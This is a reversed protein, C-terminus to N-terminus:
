VCSFILLIVIVPMDPDSLVVCDSILCAIGPARTPKLSKPLLRDALAPSVSRLPASRHFMPPTRVQGFDKEISELLHNAMEGCGEFDFQDLVGLLRGRLQLEAPFAALAKRMVVAAVAGKLLAGVAKEKGKSGEDNGGELAAEAGEAEIDQEEM